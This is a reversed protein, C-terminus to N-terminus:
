FKKQKKNPNQLKDEIIQVIGFHKFRKAYFLPTIHEYPAAHGHCPNVNDVREAIFQFTKVNGQIALIHLTSFEDNFFMPNKSPLHPWFYQLRKLDGFVLKFFGSDRTVFPIGELKAGSCTRKDETESFQRLLLGLEKIDEKRAGVSQVIRPFDPYILAEKIQIRRIICRWRKPHDQIVQWWNKCVLSSSLLSKSDMQNIIEEFIHVFGPTTILLALEMITLNQFGETINTSVDAAM